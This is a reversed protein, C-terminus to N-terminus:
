PQGGRSPKTRFVRFHRINPAEKLHLRGHELHQLLLCLRGAMNVPWPKATMARLRGYGYAEQYSYGECLAARQQMAKGVGCFLAAVATSTPRQQQSSHLVAAGHYRM